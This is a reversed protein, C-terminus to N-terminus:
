ELLTNSKIACMSETLYSCVSYVLFRWLSKASKKHSFNLALSKLAPLSM